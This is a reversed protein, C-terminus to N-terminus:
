DKATLAHEICYKTLDVNNKWGTKDLIRARYSGVTKVSLHMAEAIEIPKKGDAILMMIRYEQTSLAEHQDAPGARGGLSNVLQDAMSATVYRKGESLRTLATVLEAGARDKPLYGSVGMQLLRAAYMGEDNFSVILIPISGAVRLVRVVGETGSADPMGLDLVIVTPAFSRIKKLAESITEAEEIEASGWENTVLARMGTRMIPHDDILLVKV